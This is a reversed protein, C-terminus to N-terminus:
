KFICIYIYVCVNNGRERERERKMAMETEGQNEMNKDMSRTAGPRRVAGGGRNERGLDVGRHAVRHASDDAQLVRLAGPGAGAM